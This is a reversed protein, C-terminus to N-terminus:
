EMGLQDKLMFAAFQVGNYAIHMVIAPWLSGTKWRVFGFSAGAAFLLVLIQWHWDYQDGHPPGLTYVAFSVLFVTTDVTNAEPM